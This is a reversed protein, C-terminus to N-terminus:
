KLTADEKGEQYGEDYGAQYEGDCDNSDYGAEYGADEAEKLCVACPRVILEKGELDLEEFILEEECEKCTLKM